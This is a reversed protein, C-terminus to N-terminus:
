RAECISLLHFDFTRLVAGHLHVCLVAGLAGEYGTCGEDLRTLLGSGGDRSVAVVLLQHNGSTTTHTQDLHLPSGLRHRGARPRYLRSHHDLGVRRKDVLCSFTDHFEEEGVMRKVAGNAVLSALAIELVLRHSIAAVASSEVLHPALTSYLVLVNPRQDLYSMVHARSLLHASMRCVEIFLHMWQVRQTRKELSM